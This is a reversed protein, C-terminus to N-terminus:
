DAFLARDEVVTRLKEAPLGLFKALAEANEAPDANERLRLHNAFGADRLRDAEFTIDRRLTPMLRAFTTDSTNDSALGVRKAHGALYAQSFSCEIQLLRVVAPDATFDRLLGIHMPDACIILRTSNFHDFLRRVLARPHRMRKQLGNQLGGLDPLGAHEENFLYEVAPANIHQRLAALLRKAVHWKKCIVILLERECGLTAEAEWFRPAFRRGVRGRQTLFDFLREGEDSIAFEQRSTAFLAGLRQKLDQAEPSIKRAFLANQGLLLDFHDNYFTVPMGYDTFLRFTLTRSHIEQAPILHPVLTQFFTEDPIWTTSFFRMVDRRRSVLDLLKEVTTRRLCWWQSGIRMQLDAPPQRALGLRRQINMSMYFLRQQRRENFFHRYILRERQLGTKIWGGQFYDVTEIFDADETDLFRRIFAASRIPMCDGSLLYFHTARPFHAEACRLAELTAAVLSWEGWGCKWRRAAFAVSPNDKLGARIRGYAAKSGRGDFHVTVVDGAGTLQNAQAIIAEPDKHCLLIYAIQAL